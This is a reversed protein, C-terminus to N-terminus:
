SRKKEGHCDKKNWTNGVKDTTIQNPSADKCAIWKSWANKSVIKEKVISTINEIKDNRTVKRLYTYQMSILSM